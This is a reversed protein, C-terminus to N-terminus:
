FLKNLKNNYRHKICEENQPMPENQFLISATNARPTEQLFLVTNHLINYLIINYLLTIRQNFDTPKLASLFALISHKM